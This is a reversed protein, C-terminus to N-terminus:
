FHKLRLMRCTRPIDGTFQCAAIDLQECRELQDQILSKIPTVVISPKSALVAPLMYTLSKGGGTSLVALFNEKRTTSEIVEKQQPRFEAYGFFNKLTNLILEGTALDIEERRQAQDQVPDNPLSELVDGDLVEQSKLMVRPVRRNDLLEEKALFLYSNRARMEKVEIVPQEANFLFNMELLVFSFKSAAELSSSAVVNTTIGCGNVRYNQSNQPDSPPIDGVKELLDLLHSNDISAM